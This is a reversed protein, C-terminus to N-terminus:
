AVECFDVEYRLTIHSGISKTMYRIVYTLVYPVFVQHWTVCSLPNFRRKSFTIYERL